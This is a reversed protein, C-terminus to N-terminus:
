VVSPRKSTRDSTACSRPTALEEERRWLKGLDNNATTGAPAKMADVTVGVSAAMAIAVSRRTPAGRDSDTPSVSESSTRM